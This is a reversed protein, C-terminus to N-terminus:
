GRMRRKLIEEGREILAEKDIDSFPELFRNAKPNMYLDTLADELIQDDELIDDNFENALMVESDQEYFVNLEEIFIFNTQNEEYEQILQIVQNIEEQKLVEDHKVYVDLQYFAKGETRVSDKFKQIAEYLAHKGKAKTEIIAKEFRIYQTPKFRAELKAEDGEVLLYGKEGKEKFHRAQINGPYHIQSLESIMQREHIHGLAWYHYLKSNLDEVNFETYRNKVNSAQSYTGHLLGIHIGKNGTSEPYEDVKNEYSADKQYSFGHLYVVQGNKTILQYTSVKDSFVTVNEPWVTHVSDSLPDHNGHIIYVFIQEQELKKFQERLYVEARLTRNDQDFLDGSIIVFDVQEKIADDIINTFSNYGSQKVDNLISPSLYHRSKFPSDLHLDACHIFKIM